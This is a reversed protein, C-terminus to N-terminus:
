FSALAEVQAIGDRKSLNKEIERACGAFNLVKVPLTATKMTHIERIFIPERVICFQRCRREQPPSLMQIQMDVVVWLMAIEGKIIECTIPSGERFINM